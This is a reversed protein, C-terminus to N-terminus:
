LIYNKWVNQGGILKFILELNFHLRISKLNNRVCSILYWCHWHESSQSGTPSWCRMKSLAVCYRHLAMFITSKRLIGQRLKYSNSINIPYTIVSSMWILWSIEDKVICCLVWHLWRFITSKQLIGPRVKYSNSINISNWTELKLGEM